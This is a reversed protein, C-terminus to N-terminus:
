FFFSFICYKSPRRAKAHIFLVHESAVEDELPQLVLADARQDFNCRYKIIM